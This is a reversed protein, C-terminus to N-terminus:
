TGEEMDTDRLRHAAVCKHAAVLKWTHRSLKYSITALTRVNYSSFPLIEVETILIRLTHIYIYIYARVSAVCVCVCMNM